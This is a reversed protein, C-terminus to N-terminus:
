QGRLGDLLGQIRPHQPEPAMELAKSYNAIAQETQGLSSQAEALSDYVNWSDPHDAVNRAFVEAAKAPLGRQMFQYGLANVQRENGVELARDLLAMSEEDQGLRQLLGSKVQLTIFNEQQTLGRDAWQLAEELNIDNQLCYQAASTWGMWSFGPLSRLDNRIKTLVYTHTDVEVKFPVRLSGWHLSIVGSDPTLDDFRYQLIEQHPAAEPTVTIRLADEDPSYSFSGWSTSNTSLAVQWESAGPVMHLGYTGATVPQGEVTVDHSFTITTNENAGARWVQDYPILSGYLPRDNVLPRHYDLTIETIGITQTVSQHQSIRPLGRLNQQAVAPLAVLAGALVIPLLLAHRRRAPPAPNSHM